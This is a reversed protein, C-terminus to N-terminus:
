EYRLSDVPNAVAAKISQYSVTCLTFVFVLLGSLIFIEIGIGTKYVFKQLWRSMVFYGIPWAIVAALALCKMYEKALLVIINQFDAGLIKRISIEKRKQELLFSALGILGLCAISLALFTFINFSKGLRQEAKYIKNIREDLFGFQFPFEPSFTKWKEEIFALTRLTNSPNVKISFYDM